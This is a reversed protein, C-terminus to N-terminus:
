KKADSFYDGLRFEVNDKIKNILEVFLNSNTKLTEASRILSGCYDRVRGTETKNDFGPNLLSVSSSPTCAHETLYHMSAAMLKLHQEINQCVFMADPLTIMGNPPFNVLSSPKWDNTHMQRIADLLNIRDGVNVVGLNKFDADRMQLFDVLKINQREFLSVYKRIKYQCLVNAVDNREVSICNRNRGDDLSTENGNFIDLDLIKTDKSIGYLFLAKSIKSYGGFAASEYAQLGGNNLLHVDVNYNLLRKIIRGFGRTAAWHLPTRRDSDCANVDAGKAILVDLLELLDSKVAFHLATAGLEPERYNIDITHELIIEACRKIESKDENVSCALPMLCTRSDILKEPDAGEEILYRVIDSRGAHCAFMLCSWDDELVENVGFNHDDRLKKLSDAVRDQTGKYIAYRLPQVLKPKSPPVVVTSEILTAPEFDDDDIAYKQNHNTTSTAGQNCYDYGYDSFDSDSNDSDSFGGPRFITNNQKVPHSGTTPQKLWTGGPM